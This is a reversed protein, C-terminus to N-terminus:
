FERERFRLGAKMWSERHCSCGKIRAQGLTLMETNDSRHCCVITDSVIPGARCGTASKLVHSQGKQHQHWPRSKETNTSRLRQVFRPGCAHLVTPTKTLRQVRPSVPRLNKKVTQVHSAYTTRRKSGKTNLVTFDPWGNRRFIGNQPCQCKLIPDGTFVTILSHCHSTKNATSM